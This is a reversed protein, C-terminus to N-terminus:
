GGRPPSFREDLVFPRPGFHDAIMRLMAPADPFRKLDAGLPTDDRKITGYSGSLRFRITWARRRKPSNACSCFTLSSSSAVSLFNARARALHFWVAGSQERLLAAGSVPLLWRPNRQTWSAYQLSQAGATVDSAERLPRLPRM